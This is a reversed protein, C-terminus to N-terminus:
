ATPIIFHYQVNLVRLLCHKLILGSQTYMCMCVYIRGTQFIVYVRMYMRFLLSLKLCTSHECVQRQNRMCDGVDRFLVGPPPSVLSHWHLQSTVEQSTKRRLLVSPTGCLSEPPYIFGRSHKPIFEELSAPVVLLAAQFSSGKSGVSQSSHCQSGHLGLM